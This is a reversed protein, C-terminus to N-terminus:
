KRSSEKRGGRASGSAKRRGEAGEPKGAGKRAPGNGPASELHCIDNLCRLIVGRESFEIVSRATPELRFRRFAKLPMELARCLIALIVFSHAVM